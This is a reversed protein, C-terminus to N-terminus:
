FCVLRCKGTHPDCKYYCEKEDHRLNGNNIAESINDETEKVSFDIVNFPLNNNKLIVDFEKKIDKMKDKLLQRNEILHRNM